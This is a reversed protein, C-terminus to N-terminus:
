GVDLGLRDFIYEERNDDQKMKQKATQKIM